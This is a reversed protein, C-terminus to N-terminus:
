RKLKFITNLTKLVLYTPLYILNYKWSARCSMCVPNDCFHYSNNEKLLDYEIRYSELASVLIASSSGIKGSRLIGSDLYSKYFKDFGGSCGGVDRKIFLKKDGDKCYFVRFFGNLLSKKTLGLEQQAYHVTTFGPSNKIIGFLIMKSNLEIIKRMPEYSLSSENHGELIYDANEGIALFSNTPHKSRKCGPYALFEKELAGVITPTSENFIFEKNVSYFPFAKSFGLTVLTGEKGIVELISELLVRRNKDRIRGIKGLNGRIFVVDGKSIGLNLFDQIIENKSYMM